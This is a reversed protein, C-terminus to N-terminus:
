GRERLALRSHKCTASITAVQVVGLVAVAVVVDLGPELVYLVVRAGEGQPDDLV